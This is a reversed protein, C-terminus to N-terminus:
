RSYTRDHKYLTAFILRLLRMARKGWVRTTCSARTKFRRQKEGRIMNAVLARSGM